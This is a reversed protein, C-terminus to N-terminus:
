GCLVVVAWAMAKSLSRSRTRCTPLRLAGPHCRWSVVCIAAAAVVAAAATISFIVPRPVEEEVEEEREGEEEEEEEGRL